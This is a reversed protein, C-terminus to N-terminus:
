AMGLKDVMTLRNLWSNLALLMPSIVILHAANFFLFETDVPTRPLVLPRPPPSM